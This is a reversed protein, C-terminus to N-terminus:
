LTRRLFGAIARFAEDGDPLLHPFFCYGHPMRERVFHEVRPNDTKALLETFARNDDMLPDATGSVVLTPPYGALNGRAPSVHPHSWNQMTCPSPVHVEEVAVEPYLEAASPPLEKPDVEHGQGIYGTRVPAIMLDRLTLPSRLKALLQYLPAAPDAPDIRSVGPGDGRRDAPIAAEPPLLSNTSM